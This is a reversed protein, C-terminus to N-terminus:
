RTGSGGSRVDGLQFDLPRKKVQERFLKGYNPQVLEAVVRGDLGTVSELNTGAEPNLIQNSKAAELSDGWFRDLVPTGACGAFISLAAILGIVIFPRSWLMSGEQKKTTVFIDTEERHSSNNPYAYETDL